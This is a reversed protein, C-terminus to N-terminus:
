SASVRTGEATPAAVRSGAQIPVSRTKETPFRVRIRWLHRTEDTFPTRGHLMTKNHIFVLDGAELTFDLTSPSGLIVQKITRYALVQEPTCLDPREAIAKEFTDVRFRIGDDRLMAGFNYERESGGNKNFTTPVVFPFATTRLTREVEHGGPLERLERLVDEVSLLLSRGGGCDANKLTLLAFADEPDESYQSDTHLQAEAAHESYTLVAGAAAPNAKIDWLVKDGVHPSLTGVAACLATFEEKMAERDAFRSGYGPILVHGERRLAEQIARALSARDMSAPNGPIVYPARAM